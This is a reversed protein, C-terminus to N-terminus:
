GMRRVVRGYVFTTPFYGAMRSDFSAALNDGLLVLQGHPVVADDMPVGDPVPEGGVAAVRKVMRRDDETGAPTEPWGPKGSPRRVVVVDGSSVLTGSTRRVAVRDGEHLTPEMSPGVVTIVAWNRRLWAVGAGALALVGALVLKRIM